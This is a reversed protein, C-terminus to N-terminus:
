HVAQRAARCFDRIKDPNKRGPADEVGSSVDVATPATPSLLSLAHGINAPTLGGSLMWPRRCDLNQLLSWDFAVGNGGPLPGGSGADFLLWDSVAEYARVAELDAKDRIKIAKIVPLGYKERIELVREPPESGHLQIMDVPVAGLIDDLLANDPAVFLGVIKVGTPASSTLVRAAERSISRPSKPYFVFGIYRAGSETAASLAAVDTIGCIKIDTM